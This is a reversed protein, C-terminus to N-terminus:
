EVFIIQKKDLALQYAKKLMIAKNKHNEPTKQTKKIFAHTTVILVDCNGKFYLLRINGKILEYIKEEKDVLHSLKTPLTDIGYDAIREILGLLGDVSSQNKSEIENFFSLTECDDGSMVAAIKYRSEHLIKLKM